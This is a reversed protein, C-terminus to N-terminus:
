KKLLVRYHFRQINYGGAPITEVYTSGLNGTVRGNLMGNAGFHLNSWDTVKGVRDEVKEILNLVSQQANELNEKKLSEITNENVREYESFENFGAKELLINRPKVFYEDRAKDMFIRKAQNREFNNNYKVSRSMEYFENDKERYIESWSSYLKNIEEVLWEDCAKKLMEDRDNWTKEIFTIFESFTTFIEERENIEAQVDEPINEMINKLESELKEIKKSTSKIEKEWYKVEFTSTKEDNKADELRKKWSELYSRQENLSRQKRNVVNKWTNYIKYAM